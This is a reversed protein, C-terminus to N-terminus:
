ESYRASSTPTEFVTVSKLLHPYHDVSDFIRKAIEEATPFLMNTMNENLYSHDFRSIIPDISQKIHGFDAVMGMEDLKESAFTVLVRYNHGHVVGCTPHNPLHHAACFNFEKTVEFM